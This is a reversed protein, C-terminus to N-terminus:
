IQKAKVILRDLYQRTAADFAGGCTILTLESQGNQGFIEEVPAGDAAVMHSSYVQYTFERLQEDVVVIRDGPTLRNLLGFVRLQGGWDVHGALVVNGNQGTGAGLSWWAVADPHPPVDMGGDADEGVPYVDADVGLAPIKLDVPAVPPLLGTEAAEEVPTQEDAWDDAYAPTATVLLLGALLLRLGRCDM